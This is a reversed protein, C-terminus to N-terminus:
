IKILGKRVGKIILLIIIVILLIFFYIILIVKAKKSKSESVEIELLRKKPFLTYFIIILFIFYIASNFYRNISKNEPFIKPIMYYSPLDFLIVVLVIHLFFMGVVTMCTRFFPVDIRRREYMRYITAIIKYVLSM